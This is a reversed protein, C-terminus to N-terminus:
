HGDLFSFKECPWTSSGTSQAPFPSFKLWNILIGKKPTPTYLFPDKYTLPLITVLYAPKPILAYLPITYWTHDGIANIPTVGNKALKPRVWGKFGLAKKLNHPIYRLPIIRRLRVLGSRQLGRLQIIIRIFIFQNAWEILMEQIMDCTDM